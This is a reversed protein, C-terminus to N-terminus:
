LAPLAQPLLWIPLLSLVREAGPLRGALGPAVLDAAIWGAGEGGRRSVQVIPVGAAAARAPVFRGILSTAGLVVVPSPLVPPTEPM